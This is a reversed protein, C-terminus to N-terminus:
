LTRMGSFSPEPVIKIVGNSILDMEDIGCLLQERFRFGRSSRTAAFHGPSPRKRVHFTDALLCASMM